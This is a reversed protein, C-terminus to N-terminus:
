FGDRKLLRQDYSKMIGIYTFPISMFSCNLLSAFIHINFNGVRIGGIKNKKYNVKLDQLLRLISKLVIVNYKAAKYVLVIDKAFQLMTIKIDSKGIKVTELIDKNETQSGTGGSGEVIILFM